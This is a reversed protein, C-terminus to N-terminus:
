GQPFIRTITTNEGFLKKLTAELRDVLGNEFAEEADAKEQAQEDSRCRNLFDLIENPLDGIFQPTEPEADAAYPCPEDELMGELEDEEQYNMLFESLNELAQAIALAIELKVTRM